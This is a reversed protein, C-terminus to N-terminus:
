FRHAPLVAVESGDALFASSPTGAMAEAFGAGYLEALDAELLARRAPWVRWPAHQVQYESTRGDRRATYGWYHDTVFHAETGERPQSPESETEVAMRGWRDPMTRSRWSYEVYTPVGAATTEIRHRMPRWEYPEEYAWRAVAAIASRPVLEKVFSVGRRVEPGTPRPVERKVYCRLNVEEFDTHMPVRLGRVRTELFRFGVLSVITAGEFTDPVTGPPVYPAVLAPDVRWNLMVLLDWRATLFPRGLGPVEPARWLLQSM